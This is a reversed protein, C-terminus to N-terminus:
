YGSPTAIRRDHCAHARERFTRASTICVAHSPIRNDDAISIKCPLMIKNYETSWTSPQSTNLLRCSNRLIKRKTKLVATSIRRTFHTLTSRVVVGLHIAPPPSSLPHKSSIGQFIRFRCQTSLEDLHIRVLNPVNKRYCPM